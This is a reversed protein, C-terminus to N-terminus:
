EGREWGGVGPDYRRILRAPSGALVSHDPFSKTVVANAGVVCNRGLAVGPLIACGIGLFSGSGIVIPAGGEMPQRVIPLNPDSFGHYSDGIFIRASTVVDDGITISHTCSIFTDAGFTCRDGIVCNPEYRQGAYSDSAVLVLNEGFFCEEGIAIHRAGAVRRPWPKLVSGRGFRRFGFLPAELRHLVELVIGRM